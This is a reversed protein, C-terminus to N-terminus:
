GVVYVDWGMMVNKMLHKVVSMLLKKQYWFRLFFAEGFLDAVDCAAAVHFLAQQIQVKATHIQIIVKSTNYLIM